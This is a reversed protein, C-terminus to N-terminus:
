KVLYRTVAIGVEDVDENKVAEEGTTFVLEIFILNDIGRCTDAICNDPFFQVLKLSITNNSGDVLQIPKATADNGVANAESFCEFGQGDDLVM